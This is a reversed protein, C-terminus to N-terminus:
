FSKMNCFTVETGESSSGMGDSGPGDSGGIGVIVGDNHM